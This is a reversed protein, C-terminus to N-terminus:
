GPSPQDVSPKTVNAQGMPTQIRIAPAWATKGEKNIVRVRVYSESGALKYEAHDEGPRLRQQALTVGGKGIFQFTVDREAPWVAYANDSVRIRKFTPGTSAYLLGQRLANCITDEDLTEAFVEVWARGPRSARSRNPKHLHHMDDVAVGAFDLGAGLANDWLEEESPHSSDGLSPVNPHGSYIELLQAGFAAPLDSAKLGWTFNPHNVLSVGGSDQIESVGHLLADKATAFKGGGLRHDTCLANMHVQRGAGQMTVEEGGIAIFNPSRIWAYDAPNTFTNHDTIAIFDYGHDRYWTYTDVPTSDGDSRTTHTHLNGRRFSTVDFTRAFRAGEVVPESPAPARAPLAAATQVREESRAPRGARLAGATLMFAVAGIELVRSRSMAAYPHPKEALRREPAPFTMPPFGLVRRVFSRSKPTFIARIKAADYTRPRHGIPTRFSLNTEAPLGQTLPAVFPCRRDCEPECVAQKTKRTSPVMGFVDRFRGLRQDASTV